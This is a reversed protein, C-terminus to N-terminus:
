QGFGSSCNPFTQFALNLMKNEQRNRRCTQQTNYHHFLIKPIRGMQRDRIYDPLCAVSARMQTRCRLASANKHNLNLPSLSALRDRRRRRDGRCVTPQKEYRSSNLKEIKGKKKRETVSSFLIFLLILKYRRRATTTAPRRPGNIEIGWKIRWLVSM